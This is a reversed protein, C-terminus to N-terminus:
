RDWAHRVSGPGHTIPLTGQEPIHPEGGFNLVNDFRVSCTRIIKDCGFTAQFADGPEIAFPMAQFLILDETDGDYSKIEMTLGVNLGDLWEVLGFRWVDPDASETVLSATFQQRDTVYIVSSDEQYPNDGTSPTLDFKCRADGLTYRCSVSTIEVIEQQLRQSKGRIECTFSTDGIKIEGASWGLALYLAGMSLDEYNVVFIDVTAMDFLGAAVDAETIMGQHMFSIVEMNDVGMGRDQSLSTSIFGTSAQYTDGTFVIDTDHDTYFYETGDRRQVRWLVARTTTEQQLHARLEASIAKSV